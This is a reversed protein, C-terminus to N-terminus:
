KEPYLKNDYPEDYTLTYTNGAYSVKVITDKGTGETTYPFEVKEKYPQWWSDPKIAGYIKNNDVNYISGSITKGNGSPLDNFEGVWGGDSMGWLCISNSNDEFEGFDLFYQYKNLSLIDMFTASDPLDFAITGDANKSYAIKLVTSFSSKLYEISQSKHYETYKKVATQYDISEELFIGVESLECRISDTREKETSGYLDELFYDENLSNVYNVAESYSYPKEDMYEAKTIINLINNDTISYSYELEKKWPNELQSDKDYDYITFTGNTSFELKKDHKYESNYFIKGAFIDQQNSTGGPTGPLEVKPLGSGSGSNDDDDSKCSFFTAAALVAFAGFIFKTTKKM